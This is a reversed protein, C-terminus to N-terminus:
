SAVQYLVHVQGHYREGQRHKILRLLIQILKTFIRCFVEGSILNPIWSMDFYSKISEWTSQIEEQVEGTELHELGKQASETLAVAENKAQKTELMNMQKSWNQLRIKQSPVFDFAISPKM